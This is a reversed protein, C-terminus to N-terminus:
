APPKLGWAVALGAAAVRNPVDLKALIHEIHTAVTRATVFLREAIERNTRGATLEALVQLERTTLGGPHDAPGREVVTVTGEAAPRFELLRGDHPVLITAPLARRVAARPFGDTVKDPALRDSHRPTPPDVAAALCDDLLALVQEGGPHPARRRKMSFNLVGVYRGDQSFLCRTLGDEFGSPEIVERVTTSIARLRPPVDHLWLTGGPRRVHVFLPDEHFHACLHERAAPAYDAALVVHRRLWPDWRALSAHDHDVVGSLASLVDHAPGTGLAVRRAAERVHLAAELVADTSRPGARAGDDTARTM